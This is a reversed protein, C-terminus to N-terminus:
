HQSSHCSSSILVKARGYVVKLFAMMSPGMAGCATMVIPTVITNNGAEDLLRRVKDHNRKEEEPARLLANVGDLGARAGRSLSTGSGITVISIKLIVRARSSQHISTSWTLMM